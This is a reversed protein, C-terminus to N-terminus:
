LTMALCPQEESELKGDISDFAISLSVDRCPYETAVELRTGKVALVRCPISTKARRQWGIFPALNVLVRDGKHIDMM